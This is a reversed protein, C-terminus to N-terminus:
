SKSLTLGEAGIVFLSKIHCNLEDGNPPIVRGSGALRAFGQKPDARKSWDCVLEQHM